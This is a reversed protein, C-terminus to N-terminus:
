LCLREKIMVLQELELDFFPKRFLQWGIAASEDFRDRLLELVKEREVQRIVEQNKKKIQDAIYRDHDAKQKAKLKIYNLAKDHLCEQSDASCSCQDGHMTTHSLFYKGSSLSKRWRFVTLNGNKQLAKWYSYGYCVWDESESIRQRDPDVMGEIGEILDRYSNPNNKLDLPSIESLNIEANKEKIEATKKAEEFLSLQRVESIGRNKRAQKDM